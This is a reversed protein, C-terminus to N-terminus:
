ASGVLAHAAGRYFVVPQERVTYDASLTELARNRNTQENILVDLNDPLEGEIYLFTTSGCKIYSGSKLITRFEFRGDVWTGNRTDGDQLIARDRETLIECHHQSALEDDLLIDNDAARGITVRGTLRTVSGKRTGSLVILWREM